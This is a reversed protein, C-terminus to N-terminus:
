HTLLWDADGFSVLCLPMLEGDLLANRKLDRIAEGLRRTQSPDASTLGRMLRAAVEASHEALVTAITGVVVAAGRVRFVAVPNAYADGTGAMDCGLLAVLPEQGSEGDARIHSKTIGIIKIPKGGIEVTADQGSGDSHALAILLSPHSQGVHIKWDKWDTAQKATLQAALLQQRLPELQADVVRESCGFVASGSLKLTERGAAPESQVGVEGASALDAQIAHREIVKSLGWFGMPCYSDEDHVCTAACHGNAIGERWNPCPQAADNPADFEYIFEFPIVIADSRTSVIQIFESGLATNETGASAHHSKILYLHLYNGLQALKRLLNGGKKSELGGIFDKATRAASSLL